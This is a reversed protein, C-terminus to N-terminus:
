RVIKEIVIILSIIGIIALVSFPNAFNITWGLQSIRKPPFIRKDIRNFYFIGLFWNDPDKSWQDLTEKNPEEDKM